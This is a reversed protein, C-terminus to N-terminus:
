RRPQRHRNRMGGMKQNSMCRPDLKRVYEPKLKGAISGPLVGLDKVIDQLFTIAAAEPPREVQTPDHCFVCASFEPVNCEDTFYAYPCITRDMSTVCTCVTPVFTKWRTKFDKLPM